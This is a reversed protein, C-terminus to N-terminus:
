GMQQLFGSTFYTQYLTKVQEDTFEYDWSRMDWLYGPYTRDYLNTQGWRMSNSYTTTTFAGAAGDRSGKVGNRYGDVCTTAIYGGHWVVVYHDWVNQRVILGIKLGSQNGQGVVLQGTTTLFGIYEFNATAGDAGGYGMIEKYVGAAATCYLWFSTTHVTSALVYPSSNVNLFDTGDNANYVPWYGDNCGPPKPYNNFTMGTNTLHYAGVEDNLSQGKFRYRYKEVAM